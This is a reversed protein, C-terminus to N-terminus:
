VKECKVGQTTIAVPLHSVDPSLALCAEMTDTEGLGVVCDGMGSGSIKAGWITPQQCLTDVLNHLIPMSVGLASMLGQQVKMIEGVQNWEKKQV